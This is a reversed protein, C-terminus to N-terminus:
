LMVSCTSVIPHFLKTLQYLSCLFMYYSPTSPRQYKVINQEKQELPNTYLLQVVEELTHHFNKVRNVHLLPFLCFLLKTSFHLTYSTYALAQGVLSLLLLRRSYCYECNAPVIEKAKQLPLLEGDFLSQVSQIPLYFDENSPPLYEM